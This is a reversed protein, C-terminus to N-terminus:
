KNDETHQGEDASSTGQNEREVGEGNSEQVPLLSPIFQM